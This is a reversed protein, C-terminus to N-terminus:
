HAMGWLIDFRAESSTYAFVNNMEFGELPDGNGVVVFFIQLIRKALYLYISIYDEKRMM